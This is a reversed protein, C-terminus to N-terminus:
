KVFRNLINLDDLRKLQDRFKVFKQDYASLPPLSDRGPVTKAPALASDFSDALSSLEINKLRARNAAVDARRLGALGEKITKPDQLKAMARTRSANVRRAMAESLKRYYESSAAISGRKVNGSSKIHNVLMDLGRKAEKRLMLPQLFKNM